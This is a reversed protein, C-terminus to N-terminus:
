PQHGSRVVHQMIEAATWLRVFGYGSGNLCNCCAVVVAFKGAPRLRGEQAEDAIRQPPLASAVPLKGVLGAENALSDRSSIACSSAAAGCPALQGRLLGLAQEQQSCLAAYLEMNDAAVQWLLHNLEQDESVAAEIQMWKEQLQVEAQLCDDVDQEFLAKRQQLLAVEARLGEVRLWLGALQAEWSSGSGANDFSSGIGQRLLPTSGLLWTLEKDAAAAAAKAAKAQVFLQVHTQQRQKVLVEPSQYSGEHQRAAAAAMGGRGQWPTTWPLTYPCSAAQQDPVGRAGKLLAQLQQQVSQSVGISGDKQGAAGWSLPALLAAEAENLIVGLEHSSHAALQSSGTVLLDPAEQLLQMTSSKVSESPSYGSLLSCRALPQLSGSTSHTGSPNLHEWTSSQQPGPAGALGQQGGCSDIKGQQNTNTATLSPVSQDTGRQSDTQEGAPLPLTTHQQQLQQQHLM